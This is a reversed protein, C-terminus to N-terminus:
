GSAAGQPASGASFASAAQQIRYIQAQRAAAEISAPVTAEGGATTGVMPTAFTPGSDLMTSALGHLQWYAIEEASQAQRGQQAELFAAQYPTGPAGTRIEELDDEEMRAPATPSPSGGFM